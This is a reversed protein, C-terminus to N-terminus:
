TVVVAHREKTRRINIGKVSLPNFYDFTDLEMRRYLKQGKRQLILSTIQFDLAVSIFARLSPVYITPLVHPSYSYQAM